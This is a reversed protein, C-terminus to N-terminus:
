LYAESVGVRDLSFFILGQSMADPIALRGISPVVQISQPLVLTNSSLPAILGVFGGTEDFSFAMARVVSCQDCPPAPPVTTGPSEWIGFQLQANRFLRKDNWEPPNTADAHTLTRARGNRLLLNPDQSIACPATSPAVSPDPVGHHEFGTATGTVIWQGGVRVTYTVPYPFCCTLPLPGLEPPAQRPKLVLHDQYARAIERERLLAITTGASQTGFAANCRDYGCANGVSGWYPDAPDPLPDAIALIDGTGFTAEAALDAGQVGYSCFAASADYFAYGAPSDGAECSDPSTPGALRSPDSCTFSGLHGGFGPVQGEYTM